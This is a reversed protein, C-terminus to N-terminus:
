GILGKLSTEIRSESGPFTKHGTKIFNERFSNNSVNIYPFPVEAMKIYNIKKQM